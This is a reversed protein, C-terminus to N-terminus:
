ERDLDSKPEVTSCMFGDTSVLFVGIEVPDMQSFANRIGDIETSSLHATASEFIHEVPVLRALLQPGDGFLCVVFKSPLSGARIVEHYSEILFSSFPEQDLSDLMERATVPM